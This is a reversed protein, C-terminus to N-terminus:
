LKSGDSSSFSSVLDGGLPGEIKCCTNPPCLKGGGTYVGEGSRSLAGLALRVFLGLGARLVPPGLGTRGAIGTRDRGAGGTM